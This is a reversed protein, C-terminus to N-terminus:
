SELVTVARQADAATDFALHLVFRSGIVTGCFGRLKLGAEGVRKAVKAAIGPENQGEARVSHMHCSVSFGEERAAQIERDERLPTVFVVNTGPKEHCRRAIITELNAGAEALSALKDGLAGPDEDVSTVWVEEYEAKMKM